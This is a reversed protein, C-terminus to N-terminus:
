TILAMGVRRVVLSDSRQNSAPASSSGSPVKNMKTRRTRQGESPVKNMKTRGTRKDKAKRVWTVLLPLYYLHLSSSMFSNFFPSFMLACRCHGDPYRAPFILFNRRREQEKIRVYIELSLFFHLFSSLLSFNLFLYLLSPRSSSLYVDQM